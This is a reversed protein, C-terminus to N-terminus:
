KRGRRREPCASNPSPMGSRLKLHPKEGVLVEGARSDCHELGGAVINDPEPCRCRTCAIWFYQGPGRSVRANQEGEVLVKAFQSSRRRQRCCAADHQEPDRYRIRTIDSSTQDVEYGCAVIPLGSKRPRALGHASARVETVPELM